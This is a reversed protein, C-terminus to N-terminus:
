TGTGAANGDREERELEAITREVFELAENWAGHFAWKDSFREPTVKALRIQEKLRDIM